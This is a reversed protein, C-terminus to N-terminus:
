AEFVERLIGQKLAMFDAAQKAQLEQLVLTKKSLTDLKKVIEQQESLPPLPIQIKKLEKVATINKIAMGKIHATNQVLYDRLALLLYSTHVKNSPTIKLLAQNIVGQTFVEPVIALKGITGSCSMLIDGSAVQFRKMEHYKEPTIFYRFSELDNDIVNGQEYVSFGSSVFIEKKLSGGFPGRVLLALEGLDSYRYKKTEEFVEHLAAPLLKDALKASKVRLQAAEDIKAFQQEIKAVIKKQEPLPPVKVEINSYESIWYRKHTAHNVHLTQLLLYFYKPDAVGEKPHLIKMASSKVKFPFTVFKTATTFDDFIIVPLRDAPFINDKEATNGLIFTKGATLVPTKYDNSYHKTKVIYKTPQEYDLVEGLKKTSYTM